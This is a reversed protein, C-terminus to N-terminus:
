SEDELCAVEGLDTSITLWTPGGPGTEEFDAILAVSAPLTSFPALDRDDDAIATIADEATPRTRRRDPGRPM